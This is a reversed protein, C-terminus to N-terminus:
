GVLIKGEPLSKEGQHKGANIALAMTIPGIRGLYMTIMVIIKGATMLSGTMNRTLGVTGIASTTEYLTDLFSSNQIASLSITTVMLVLFSVMVVALGKKLYQDSIRRQFIEIDKKGRVISITSLLIVAVTVTKIGGATGSPSGGIFMWVLYVISTADKFNQQPITAFGATRTTVSQFLSSLMKKGISLEGITAPNNFELIFTLVAGLVIMVVTVTIAIKSHLTLRRFMSRVKIDKKVAQKSIHFVDWWVPFGIGGLVILGMTVLNIWLNDRYPIFSNGGVLDIGANCFASVAHFISYWVGDVVGFEPVFQFLYCFAGIGEVILTFKIIKKTLKVLGSLTDINYANQIVLRDSLKVRKGLLLFITTTFTVVGLGGFQILLLIVLQGFFSWHEGTTVTTLGTVCISTTATFFSDELPTVIGAKTAIPLSLLLAGLMIGALFGTAIMRTTSFRRKKQFM